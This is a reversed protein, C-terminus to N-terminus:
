MGICMLVIVLSLLTGIILPIDQRWSGTAKELSIAKMNQKNRHHSKVHLM